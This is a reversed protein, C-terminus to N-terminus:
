HRADARRDARVHIPRDMGARTRAAARGRPLARHHGQHLRAPRRRRRARHDALCAWASACTTAASRHRAGSCRPAAPPWEISIPYRHVADAPRPLVVNFTERDVRAELTATSPTSSTTAISSPTSASSAAASCATSCSRAGHASRSRRPIPGPFTGSRSSPRMPCRARADDAAAARFPLGAGARGPRRARAEDVVADAFKRNVANTSPGTPQQPLDAARARHPVAAVSGRQRLRLLLRGRGDATLWVRRLHTRRSAGAAGRDRDHRDVVDRDASQRQRARDLNGLLRAHGAGAGHRARQGPAAGRHRGGDRVHIYPERNSM